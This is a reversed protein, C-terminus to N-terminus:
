SATGLFTSGNETSPTEPLAVLLYTVPRGIRDGPNSPHGQHEQGM